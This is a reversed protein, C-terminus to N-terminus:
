LRTKPMRFDIRRKESVDGSRFAMGTRIDAACQVGDVISAFEALLKDRTMRVLRRRYEAVRPEISETRHATLVALRGEEDLGKLRSYGVVDAALIAALRGQIREEAM